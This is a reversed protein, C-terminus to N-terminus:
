LILIEQAVAVPGHHEMPSYLKGNRNDLVKWGTQDKKENINCLRNLCM